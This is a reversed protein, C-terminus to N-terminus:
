PIPQTHVTNETPMYHYPFQYPISTFVNPAFQPVSPHSSPNHPVSYQPYAPVSYQPYAPVGYQPYAPVGYQPYSSSPPVQAAYTGVGVHNPATPYAAVFGGNQQTPYVPINAWDGESIAKQVKAATKLAKRQATEERKRALREQYRQEKSEATAKAKKAKEDRKLREKEEHWERDIPGLLGLIAEAYEDAWIWEPIEKKIDAVTQLRARKALKTLIADSLITEPGWICDSCEDQWIKMRWSTLTQRCTQLRDKDRCGIRPPQKRKGSPEVVEPAEDIDEVNEMADEDGGDNEEEPIAPTDVQLRKCLHLIAIEDRTLESPREQAKRL